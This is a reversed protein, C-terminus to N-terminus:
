RANSQRPLEAADIPKLHTYTEVIEHSRYWAIAEAVGDRLSTRTQWQFDESTKTPDLLITFADDPGRPRVEVPKDLTIGMASLTADFLEQIAVDRGSSVHYVGTRGRGDIARLVVEVVDSVYIFDRRTDM